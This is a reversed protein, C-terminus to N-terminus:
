APLSTWSNVDSADSNTIVSNSVRYSFALANAAANAGARWQEGIYSILINTQPTATDNIFRVGYAFDGPTGSALSGLARDSLNSVGAVGYSYLNGTTTNGASYTTVAGAATKSAYWGPLTANDTWPNSTGSTALTNFDQSYSGSSMPIQALGPGAAALALLILATATFGSRFNMANCRPRGSEPPRM